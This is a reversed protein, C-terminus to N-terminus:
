SSLVTGKDQDGQRTTRTCQRVAKVELSLVVTDTANVDAMDRQAFHSHFGNDGTLFRFEMFDGNM